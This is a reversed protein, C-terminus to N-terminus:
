DRMEVPVSQGIITHGSVKVVDVRVVDPDGEARAAPISRLLGMATQAAWLIALLWLVKRIKHLEGRLEEM